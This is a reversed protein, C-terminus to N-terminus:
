VAEIPASAEHTSTVLTESRRWGAATQVVVYLQRGRPLVAAVHRLIGVVIVGKGNVPWINVDIWGSVPKFILIPFYPVFTPFIIGSLVNKFAYFQGKKIRFKVYSAQM